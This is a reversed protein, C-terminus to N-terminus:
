TNNHFYTNFWSNDSHTFVSQLFIIHTQLAAVHFTSCPFVTMNLAKQNWKNIKHNCLNDQKKKEKETRKMEKRTTKRADLLWATKLSLNMNRRLVVARKRATQTVCYSAEAKLRQRNISSFHKRELIGSEGLPELSLGPNHGAFRWCMAETM